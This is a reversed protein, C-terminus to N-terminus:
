KADKASVDNSPSEAKASRRTVDRGDQMEDVHSAGDMTLAQLKLSICLCQSSEDEKKAFLHGIPLNYCLQSARKLGCRHKRAAWIEQQREFLLM